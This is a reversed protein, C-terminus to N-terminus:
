NFVATKQFAKVISDILSTKQSKTVNLVLKFRLKLSRIIEM